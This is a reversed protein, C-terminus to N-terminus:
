TKTNHTASYKRYKLKRSMDNNDESAQEQSM